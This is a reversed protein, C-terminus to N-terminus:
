GVLEYDKQRVEHFISTIYKIHGGKGLRIYKSTSSFVPLLEGTERNRLIKGKLKIIEFWSLEM